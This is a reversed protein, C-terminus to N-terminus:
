EKQALKWAVWALTVARAPTTAYEEAGHEWGHKGWEISCVIENRYRDHGLLWNLGDVLLVADDLCELWDPLVTRNTWGPPVGHYDFASYDDFEGWQEYIDTWGLLEAVLRRLEANDKERVQDMTLNM